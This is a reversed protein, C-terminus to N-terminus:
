QPHTTETQAATNTTQQKNTQQKDTSVYVGVNVSPFTTSTLVSASIFCSFKQEDKYLISLMSIVFIFCTRVAFVAIVVLFM